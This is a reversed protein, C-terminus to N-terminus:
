MEGSCGSFIKQREDMAGPGCRLLVRSGLSFFIKTFGHVTLAESGSQAVWPFFVLIVGPKPPIKNQSRKDSGAM